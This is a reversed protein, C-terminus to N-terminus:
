KVDVKWSVHVADQQQGLSGSDPIEIRQVNLGSGSLATVAAVEESSYSDWKNASVLVNLVFAGHEPPLLVSQFVRAPHELLWMARIRLSTARLPDVNNLRGIENGPEGGLDTVTVALKDFIMDYTNANDAICTGDILWLAEVFEENAKGIFYLFDKESWDECTRCGDQIRPDTVKLTRKPPSSNLQIQGVGDQIKVEVADGGRIMFDPPHNASGRWSFTREWAADVHSSLAGLCEAFMNKAFIEFPKGQAGLSGRPQSTLSIGRGGGMSAVKTKVHVICRIERATYTM